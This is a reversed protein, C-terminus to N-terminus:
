ISLKTRRESMKDKDDDNSHADNDEKGNADNNQRLDTKLTKMRRVKVGYVNILLTIKAFNIHKQTVILATMRDATM